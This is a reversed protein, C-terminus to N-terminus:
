KRRQYIADIMHLHNVRNFTHSGIINKDWDPTVSSVLVESYNFEDLATIENINFGYGYRTSCNQSPRYLKGNESFIKGAPRSTKCDSVIPNLPHSQWNNNFLESSSFLFLEDCTSSGYNEVMNVFMWWKGKYFYVTADVTSVNEMLNMQFEWKHPFEVCKYLEIKNNSKTEPIMYCEKEYEFVFPYSLHYPRELVIEPESYVGSEDMIILSIHGKQMNYM